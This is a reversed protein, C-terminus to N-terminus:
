RSSSLVKNVAFLVSQTNNLSAEQTANSQQKKLLQDKMPQMMEQYKQLNDNLHTFKDGIRKLRNEIKSEAPSDAKEM